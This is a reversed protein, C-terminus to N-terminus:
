DHDQEEQCTEDLSLEIQWKQLSERKETASRSSSHAGRTYFAHQRSYRILQAAGSRSLPQGFAWRHHEIAGNRLRDGLVVGECPALSHLCSLVGVELSALAQLVKPSKTPIVQVTVDDEKRLVARVAELIRCNAICIYRGKVSPALVPPHLESLRRVARVSLVELSAMRYRAGPGGTCTAIHQLKVHRHTPQRASLSALNQCANACVKKQNSPCLLRATAITGGDSQGAAISFLLPLLHEELYRVQQIWKESPKGVLVSVRHNPDFMLRAMQLTRLNAVACLENPRSRSVIVPELRILADCFRRCRTAHDGLLYPLNMQSVGTAKIVPHVGVISRITTRTREFQTDGISVQNNAYNM